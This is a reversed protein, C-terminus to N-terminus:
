IESARDSAEDAPREKSVLDLAGDDDSTMLQAVTNPIARASPIRVMLTLRMRLSVAASRRVRVAVPAPLKVRRVM